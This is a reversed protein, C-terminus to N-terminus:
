TRDRSVRNATETPLRDLAPIQIIWLSHFINPLFSQKYMHM